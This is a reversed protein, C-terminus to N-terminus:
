LARFPARENLSGCRPCRALLDDSDDQFDNACMTCRLRSRRSERELRLRSWNWAIWNGFILVLFAAMYLFVMKELSARIM